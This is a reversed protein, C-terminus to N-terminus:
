NFTATVLYNSEVDNFEFDIVSAGVSVLMFYDTETTLGFSTTINEVAGGTAIRIAGQSETILWVDFDLYFDGSTHLYSVTLPQGAPLAYYVSGSENSVTGEVAAGDTLEEVLIARLIYEGTSSSFQGRTATVTYQGGVVARFGVITREETVEGSNDVLVGGNPDSVRIATSYLSSNEARQMELVVLSGEDITITYEVATVDDTIEGEFLEDFRLKEQAQTTFVATLLVFLSILLAVRKLM